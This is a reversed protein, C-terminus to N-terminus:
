GARGKATRRGEARGNRARRGDVSNRVRELKTGAKLAKVPLYEIRGDDQLTKWAVVPM